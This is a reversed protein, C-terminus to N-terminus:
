LTSDALIRDDMDLLINFFILSMDFDIDADVIVMLFKYDFAILMM